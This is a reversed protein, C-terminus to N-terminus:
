DDSNIIEDLDLMKLAISISLLEIVKYEFADTDKTYSKDVMERLNYAMRSNEPLNKIRQEVYWQCAELKLDESANLWDSRRGNNVLGVPTNTRIRYTGDVSARGAFFAIVAVVLSVIGIIVMTLKIHSDRRQRQIETQMDKDWEENM